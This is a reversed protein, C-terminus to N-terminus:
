RFLRGAPLQIHFINYFIFNLFIPFLIDTVVVIAVLKKNGLEKKNMLIWSEFLLYAISTAVFGVQQIVFYYAFLAAVTASPQRTAKASVM